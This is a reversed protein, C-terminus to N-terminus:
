KGTFLHRHVRPWCQVLLKNKCHQRLHIQVVNVLYYEQAINGWIMTSVVNYLNNEEYFNDALCPGVNCLYFGQTINDLLSWVVNCLFFDQETNNKHEQSLIASTFVRHLTTWSARSLTACFFIRGTCHWRMAQQIVTQLFVHKPFYFSKIISRITSM